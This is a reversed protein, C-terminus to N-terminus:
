RRAADEILRLYAPAVPPVLEPIDWAPAAPRRAERFRVRAGEIDGELLALYGRRFFFAAERDIQNFVQQRAAFFMGVRERAFRGLEITGNLSPVAPTMPWGFPLVQGPAPPVGASAVRGDVVELLRGAAEYNGTQVLLQLELISLYPRAAALPPAAAKADFLEKLGSLDDTADEVRGVVMELAAVQLYRRPLEPGFERELDTAPMEKVLRIAEGTLNSKLAAEFRAKPKPDIEALRRYQDTAQQRMAQLRDTQEKLGKLVQERFERREKADEAGVTLEREAYRGALSMAEHALDVPFHYPVQVTQGGQTRVVMATLDRVAPLDVPLGPIGGTQQPNGAYLNALDQAVQFATTAYAGPTFSEPPPLRSLCQRLAAVVGLVRESDSVPLGRDALARALVFYGDPHAPNEAVARRAAKLALVPIAALSGDAEANAASTRYSFIAEGQIQVLNGVAPAPLTSYGMHLVMAAAQAVPVHRTGVVIDKYELWAMAEDAAPSAPRLPRTFDDEWSRPPPVPEVPGPPLREANPGFALAVPDVRLKDFTPPTAAPGPRWGSVATRGDLYWAAWRDPNAWMRQAAEKALVRATTGDGGGFSVAAYTIKHADFVAEAERLGVGEAARITGLGRRVKAFAEWEPRHHAYRGNAFAKEGPAYWALYNALDVSAVFGRDDAGLRGCKRWAGFQEAARVLAPDPAVEWAVRRAYAANQSPPHLWGPWACVGAALLLVVSAIRGVTSLALTMRTSTDDLAGLAVRASHANLRSALLPVSVAAFLPVAFISKLALAAFGCWLLSHPLPLPEVDWPRGAFRGVVATLAVAYLGGLLLVAFALGNVNYGLGTNEWYDGALPSTLLQRLRPDETGPGGVLEYPLDWVRVHHPNLMCALVGVGLAKALTPVDPLPGLPDDAPTAPGEANLGKTRVLEGVLLLAVALPGVFFWADTNAWLWFTVGIAVPVRWSKPPNPVRFLVFLTVSLFVFSGVLPGLTLRPAAALAAVAAVAAWPWLSHGPRRIGILLAVAAAVALAKTLVLAFGDGRYLLYAGLDFLWSHNVWARDAATFSFPDSGPTYEGATLMRGAALHLWLDSNRAAFSGVLFALGVALIVLTTDAGAFWQPWTAPKALPPPPPSPVEPPPAAADPAAPAEGGPPDGPQPPEPPPPPPASLKM